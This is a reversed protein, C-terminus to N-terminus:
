RCHCQHLSTRMGKFRKVPRIVEKTRGTLMGAQVQVLLKSGNRSLEEISREFAVFSLSTVNADPLDSAWHITLDSWVM